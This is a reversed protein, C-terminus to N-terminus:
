RCEVPLFESLTSIMVEVHSLMLEAEPESLGQVNIRSVVMGRLICCTSLATWVAWPDNINIGLDAFTGRVEATNQDVRSTYETAGYGSNAKIRRHVLRITRRLQQWPPIAIM